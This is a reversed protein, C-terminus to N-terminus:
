DSFELEVKGDQFKLRADFAKGAKSKFGKLVGTQGDRLLTKAMNVTIRKGSITKWITLKCGEKWRSCSYSKPQEIM